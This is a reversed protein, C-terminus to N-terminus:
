RRDAAAGPLPIWDGADCGDRVLLEIDGSNPLSKLKLQALGQEHAESVALGYGLAAYFAEIYALASADAVKTRVGIACDVQRRLVDAAKKSYCANLLVLTLDKAAAEIAALFGQLPMLVRDGLENLLSLDGDQNGHAAIHLIHPRFENMAGLIDDLMAGRVIHLEVRAGRAKGADILRKVEKEEQAVRIPALDAPSASLMLVRVMDGHAAGHPWRVAERYDNADFAPIWIPRYMHPNLYRGVMVALQAPGAIFLAVGRAKPAHQRLDFMLAQIESAATAASEGDLWRAGPPTELVVTAALKEGSREFYSAIAAEAAPYGTSVFVGVLGDPTNGQIARPAAFVPRASVTEGPTTPIVDWSAGRQNIVTLEGLRGRRLGVYAFLPLSARGAVYYHPAVGPPADAQAKALMADIALTWARWRSWQQGRATPKAGFNSARLVQRCTSPPVRALIEDEPIPNDLSLDLLLVIQPPDSPNMTMTRATASCAEDIAAMM